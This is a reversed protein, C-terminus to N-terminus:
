DLGTLHVYLTFCWLGGFKAPACETVWVYYKANNSWIAGTATATGAEM